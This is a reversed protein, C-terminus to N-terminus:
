TDLVFTMVAFTSPRAEFSVRLLLIHHHPVINEILYPDMCRESIVYDEPHAMDMFYDPFDLSTLLVEGHITPQVADILLVPSVKTFRRQLQRLKTTLARPSMKSRVSIM